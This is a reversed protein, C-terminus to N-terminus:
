RMHTFLNFLADKSWSARKMKKRIPIDTPDAELINRAMTRLVAWNEPAFNKRSRADDEDFIVDLPWHLHNEIGWHGRVLSALRQPTLRRSLAYYHTRRQAPQGDIDRVREIRGFAVLGPLKARAAAPAPVM